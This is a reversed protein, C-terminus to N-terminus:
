TAPADSLPAHWHAPIPASISGMASFRANKRGAKGYFFRQGDNDIMTGGAAELIAQGAATDWEMTTGIRPYLDAKGEALVCFKLSSGVALYDGPNIRDLWDQLIQSRRSMTTVVVPQDPPSIRTTIIQKPTPDPHHPNDWQRKAAILGDSFWIKQHAPAMIVGLVPHKKDILAINVTFDRGGNLFGRTGDLPDVCWYCDPDDDTDETWTEESIIPISPTLRNLGDRIIADAALDANSVPSGDPKTEVVAGKARIDLICLGADMALQEASAILNQRQNQDLRM